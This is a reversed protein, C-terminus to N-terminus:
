ETKAIVPANSSPQEDFVVSFLASCAAKAALKRAEKKNTAAVYSQQVGSRGLRSVTLSERTPPANGKGVYTAGDVDVGLTFMMNQPRDGEIALERYELHPRMFTLLMCPHMAGANLPLDKATKAPKVKPVVPASPVAAVEATSESLQAVLDRDPNTIVILYHPLM